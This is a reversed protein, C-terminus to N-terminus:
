RGVIMPGSLINGSEYYNSGPVGNQSGGNKQDFAQGDNNELPTILDCSMGNKDVVKAAENSYVFHIAKNQECILGQVKNGDEFNGNWVENLRNIAYVMQDEVTNYKKNTFSPDFKLDWIVKYGKKGFDYVLQNYLTSKTVTYTKEKKVEKADKVVNETVKVASEVTKVADSKKDDSVNSGADTAKVVPAIAPSSIVPQVVPAPMSVPAVQANAGLSFFASIISVALIKKTSISKM